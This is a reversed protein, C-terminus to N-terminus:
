YGGNQVEEEITRKSRFYNGLFSEPDLDYLSEYRDVGIASACVVQKIGASKSAALINRAHRLEAGLDDFRPYVNLFLGTCGAAAADLAPINDWDGEFLSAGQSKLTQSAASNPNRVLAHVAYKNSLLARAVAGGQTGTAGIVFITSSSM